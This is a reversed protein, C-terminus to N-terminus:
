ALRLAQQRCHLTRHGFAGAADRRRGPPRSSGDRCLRTGNHRVRLGGDFRLCDSGRQDTFVNTRKVDRLSCGERVHDLRLRSSGAVFPRGGHECSARGAFRDSRGVGYYLTASGTAGDYIGSVGFDIDITSGDASFTWGLGTTAFPVARTYASPLEIYKDVGWENRIRVRLAYETDPTLGSVDVTAPEGATAPSEAGAIVTAFGDTSAELRIAASESGTGFVMATASASLTTFGRELFTATGSPVGPALTALTVVPSKNTVNQDNVIQAQMYYTTGTALGALSVSQADVGHVIYNTTWLPNALTDSASFAVSVDAQVGGTGISGVSVTFSANTYQTSSVVIGVSPPFVGSYSEAEGATLFAADNMSDYEAKVWDASPVADLLRCEDVSGVLTSGDTGGSYSGISLSKNNDTAARGGTKNAKQVGNEFITSTTGNYVIFFHKWGEGFATNYQANADKHAGRTSFAKNNKWVVEWGDQHEWNEKRSFVRGDVTQGSGVNFWGSVAFTNGVNLSDCSPVSLYSCVTINTSLQRGNGVPGSVAVSMTSSGSGSPTATLSHGSSDAVTGSAESMHWVGVYNSFPSDGCVTKGNTGGGWCMVFETGNTMTPLRVWILSEGSSDWTDIEFPLGTGDMGVFAIDDGTVKSQLDDYSFGSPSNEAIRVLVPFGSLTSAGTYGAVTFLAGKAFAASTPRPLAQATFAAFAVIFTLTLLAVARGLKTFIQNVRDM